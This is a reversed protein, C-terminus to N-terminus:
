ILYRRRIKYSVNRLGYPPIGMGATLFPMHIGNRRLTLKYTVCGWVQM